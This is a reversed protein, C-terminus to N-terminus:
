HLLGLYERRFYQGEGYKLFRMRENLREARWTEKRMAAWNGTIKPANSLSHIEPVVDKVRNWIRKAIERDDWIIRGCDRSDTALEQRGGGADIM